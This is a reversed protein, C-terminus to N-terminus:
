TAGSLQKYKEPNTKALLSKETLNMDSFLKTSSGGASGASGSGSGVNAKIYRKNADDSVIGEILQEMNKTVDRPRVVGEVVEVSGNFLGTMYQQSAPDDAVVKSFANSQESVLYDNKERQHKKVLDGLTAEGDAVAQKYKIVDNEKEAVAKANDIKIQEAGIQYEELARKSAGEREILDSNKLKLGTVDAQIAAALKVINEEDLGYSSLDM